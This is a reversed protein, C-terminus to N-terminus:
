CTVNGTRDALFGPFIRVEDKLVCEINEPDQLSSIDDLPNTPLLLVDAIKGEELTGIQNELGCAVSGNRTASILAGMPTYGCYKV